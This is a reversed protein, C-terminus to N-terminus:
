KIASSGSLGSSLNFKDGEGPVTRAVGEGGEFFIGFNADEEKEQSSISNPTLSSLEGCILM